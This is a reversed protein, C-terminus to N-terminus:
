MTLLDRIGQEDLQESRQITKLLLNDKMGWTFLIEFLQEQLQFQSLTSINEQRVIRIYSITPQNM